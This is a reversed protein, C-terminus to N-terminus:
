ELGKATGSPDQVIATVTYRRALSSRGSLMVTSVGAMTRRVPGMSHYRDTGGLLQRHYGCLHVSCVKTAFTHASSVLGTTRAVLRSLTAQVGFWRGPLSSGRRSSIVVLGWRQVFSIIKVSTGVSNM